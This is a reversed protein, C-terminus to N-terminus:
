NKYYLIAVWDSDSLPSALTIAGSTGTNSVVPVDKLWVGNVAVANVTSNYLSPSTITAGSISSSPATLVLTQEPAGPSAYTAAVQELYQELTLNVYIDGVTTTKITLLPSQPVYGTTGPISVATPLTKTGLIASDINITFQKGTPFFNLANDYLAIITLLM